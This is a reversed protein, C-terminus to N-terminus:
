LPSLSPFFPPYLFSCYFSSHFLRFRFFSVEVMVTLVAVYFTAAAICDLTLLVATLACLDRLGGVRSYAGVLLVAIELAYDRLVSNSVSNVAEIIVRDSPKTSARRKGSGAGGHVAPQADPHTFVARAIRLPKDFGITCVIFPLAESLVVPDLPIRLHSCVILGALFAIVSSSLIATPLWFNSGLARSSRFLRFFSLHMLVYGM